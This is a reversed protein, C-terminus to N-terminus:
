VRSVKPGQQTDEIVFGQEKVQDRLWDARACDRAKKDATREEVMRTIETPIEERAPTLDIGLVECLEQIRDAAGRLAESSVADDAAAATNAARVLDFVAALAAASTM